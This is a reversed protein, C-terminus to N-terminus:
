QALRVLRSNGVWGLAHDIGIQTWAGSRGFVSYREHRRALGVIGADPQPAKRINAPATVEVNKAPPEVAQEPPVPSPAAESVVIAPTTTESGGQAVVILGVIVAIVAIVTIVAGLGWGTGRSRPSTNGAATEPVARTRKGDAHSVTTQYSLGTGPIGVTLRTGRPGINVTAGRKGVSLSPGSKSLNIRVGRGLRISRRYRFGM